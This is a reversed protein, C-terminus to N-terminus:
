ECSGLGCLPCSFCTGYRVLTVGCEPCSVALAVAGARSEAGPLIVPSITESASYSNNKELNFM